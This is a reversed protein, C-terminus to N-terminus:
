RGRGLGSAHGSATGTATMRDNYMARTNENAIIDISAASVASTSSNSKMSNSRRDAVWGSVVNPVTASIAAKRIGHFAICIRGNATSSPPM